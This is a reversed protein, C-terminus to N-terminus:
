SEPPSTPLAFCFTAGEGPASEAWMRGGHAEVISRAIALGLGTGEEGRHRSRDMKHFREFLRSLEEPAIGPGSDRVTVQVTNGDARASLAVRGGAPTHRLANGLLNGLVQAIRDADVEVQPLDEGAEVALEIQKAQAQPGFAAAARELLYAPATPQRHLPLEGADSLSLTRLDEVLRALRQAEDLIIDFTESSPPLVGESLAEAHGLILSLPTRLEHAIDATMQRRLDRSRVLDASMQNFSEALEGLEDHSRVPIRQALEGRSMAQTALTLERLPRTLSRALFVGLALAGLTAGLTGVGVAYYFEVLFAHRPDLRPMPSRGSIVMGVVVGEVEIPTGRALERSSVIEGLAYGAGAMVVRGHQDALACIRQPEEFLAAERRLFGANATPRARWGELDLSRVLMAESVGQWSGRMRYYDGGRRSIEELYRVVVYEGFSSTTARAVYLAILATGGLSVVLFAIVLKINLSRLHM